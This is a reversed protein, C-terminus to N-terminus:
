YDYHPFLCTINGNNVDAYYYLAYEGSFGFRFGGNALYESITESYSQENLADSSDTYLVETNNSIFFQKLESTYIIVPDGLYMLYAPQAQSPVSYLCYIDTGGGNKSVDLRIVADLTSNYRIKWLSSGVMKELCTDRMLTQYESYTIVVNEMIECKLVYGGTTPVAYGTDLPSRHLDSDSLARLAFMFTGSDMDFQKQNSSYENITSQTEETPYLFYRWWNNYVGNKIGDVHPVLDFWWIHHLRIDGNGWVSCNVKGSKGSLEPYNTWDNCTSSVETSNGWDYDRKSNPAFHVNGCAANGSSVKDYLTFLEWDNMQNLPQNYDWRGYVHTMISEMRHGADELMCGVDREYNFVYCVFAPCDQRIMPSSNCFYAGRGIMISEYAVVGTCPGTFIWVEDVDGKEVKQYVDFMKLYYDYDFDFGSPQRWGEYDWYANEKLARQLTNYYENVSYSFGSTSRPLENLDNWEVIEYVANGHSAKDMDLIYQKALSDPDNWASVLDHQELGGAQQFVPDFNLVMVKQAVDSLPMATTTSNTPSNTVSNNQRDASNEEAEGHQVPTSVRLKWDSVNCEGFENAGAVVVTGDNKLGATHYDGASIAVINQWESLNCEGDYNAGVAVMSGDSKLGVTHFIGASIAVIDSWGDVDCEGSSNFGTAIVNGNSQLGVTHYAAASIEIINSWNSVDCEGNDNVGVAVVSGDSKLGITRRGGASIAVINNWDNVDCEGWDNSGVAVVSGDSKLGVTHFIGASVAVIGSWNNVDCEGYYNAGVAVVSGDSKLGVTHSTGTSVSVIDNWGAVDCRGDFNEGIATVSGDPKLGVTHYESISLTQLRDSSLIDNNRAAEPLVSTNPTTTINNEPTSSNEDSAAQVPTVIHSFFDSIAIWISQFFSRPRQNLETNFEKETVLPTSDPNTLPGIYELASPENFIIWVTKGDSAKAEAMIARFTIYEAKNDYKVKTYSSINTDLNTVHLVTGSNIRGDLDSDTPSDFYAISSQTLYDGTRPYIQPETISKIGNSFTASFENDTWHEIRIVNDLDSSWNADLFYSGSGAEDRSLFILSHEPLTYPKNDEGVKPASNTRINAGAHWPENISVTKGEFTGFIMFYVYRAYGYCEAGKLNMEKGTQNDTIISKETDRTPFIAGRKYTDSSILYNVREAVYNSAYSSKSIYDSNNTQIQTIIDTKVFGFDKDEVEQAMANGALWYLSAFITCAFVITSILRKKM